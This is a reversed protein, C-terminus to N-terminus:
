ERLERGTLKLFVDELTARRVVLEDLEFRGALEAHLSEAGDTFLFLRGPAQQHDYGRAQIHSLLRADRSVVELVDRGIHQQILQAPPGEVLIRGHDVIILRDCLQAAEEMYHTTLLITVGRRRLERIKEWILHRAQPDLGTTPEDLILFEPDNLLARAVILRRKMGGSLAEILVDRKDTLQVFELLEDAKRRAVAGELGFYRAYILLNQLVTFDPDLNNEQPVVGIRHKIERPAQNVDLGLVTLKGATVPSFCYIMRITTTKGAGNPGLLGFCEGERVDFDIDDVAVFGDYMKRLSRAVVVPM